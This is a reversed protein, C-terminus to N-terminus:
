WSIPGARRGPCLRNFCVSPLDRAAMALLQLADPQGPAIKLIEQCLACSEAQHGAKLLTVSRQIAEALNM